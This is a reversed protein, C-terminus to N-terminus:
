KTKPPVYGKDRKFQEDYGDDSGVIIENLGKAARVRNLKDFLEHWKGPIKAYASSFEKKQAEDTNFEYLIQIEKSLEQIEQLGNSIGWLVISAEHAIKVAGDTLFNTRCWDIVEEDMWDTYMPHLFYKDKAIIQAKKKWDKDTVFLKGFETVAETALKVALHHLPQFGNDKALQTHTPGLPNVKWTGNIMLDLEQDLLTQYDDILNIAYIAIFHNRINKIVALYDTIYQFIGFGKFIDKASVIGLYKHVYADRFDLYKKFIEAYKGDDKGKYNANKEKVDDAQAHSIDKLLEYALADTFTREGEQLDEQDEVELSFMKNNIKPAISAITDLLGFSGTQLITCAAHSYYLGRNRYHKEPDYAEGVKIYYAALSNTKNEKMYNKVSQPCLDPNTLTKFRFRSKDLISTTAHVNSTSDAKQDKLTGKKCTSPLNDWPFVEPDYVKMVAIEVFNSHAFFDELIHMAAGFNIRGKVTTPDSLNIFNIFCDFASPFPEAGNGRIYNRTGFQANPEWQIELPDKVFDPDLQNNFNHMPEEGVGADKFTKQLVDYRLAYPNDIHEQPKYVGLLKTDIPAFNKRFDDLYKMYNQPKGDEEAKKNIEGFEKMGLLEVLTTVAERSMMVPAFTAIGWKVQADFTTYNFEVSTPFDFSRTQSYTVSNKYLLDNKLNILDDLFGKHERSKTQKNDYDNSLMNLSNAMPRVIMPDVFQSFDRLWNGFYIQARVPNKDGGILPLNGFAKDEIHKHGWGHLGDGLGAGFFEFGAFYNDDKETRNDVYENLKENLDAFDWVLKKEEGKITATAYQQEKKDFPDILYKKYKRNLKSTFKAGEDGKADGRKSSYEFRLLYDLHHGFEEVLAILLLKQYDNSKLAWDIFGQSIIIHNKFKENKNKIVVGNKDVGSYYTAGFGPVEQAVTIKPNINVKKDSANKYLKEYADLPVDGGFIEAMWFCFMAMSDKEAFAFLEEMAFVSELKYETEEIELEPPAYNQHKVGGDHGKQEVVKNSNLSLNEKYSEINIKESIEIVKGAKLFYDANVKVRINKAQKIIAM